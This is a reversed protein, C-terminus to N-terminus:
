QAAQPPPMPPTQSQAAAIASQSPLLSALDDDDSWDPVGNHRPPSKAVPPSVLLSTGIAAVLAPAKATIAAVLPAPPLKKVLKEIPPATKPSSRVLVRSDAKATTPKAPAPAAKTPKAATPPTIPVKAVAGCVCRAKKGAIAPKWRFSRGCQSCSFRPKTIQEMM